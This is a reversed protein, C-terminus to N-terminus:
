TKSPFTLFVKKKFRITNELKLWLDLYYVKISVRNEGYSKMKKKCFSFFVKGEKIETCSKEFKKFIEVM